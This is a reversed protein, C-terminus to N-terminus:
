FHSPTFREERKNDQKPMKDSHCFIFVFCIHPCSLILGARMIKVKDNETCSQNLVVLM